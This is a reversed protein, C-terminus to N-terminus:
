VGAEDKANQWGDFRRQLTEPACFEDDYAFTASTVKGHKEKCRRLMDLLEEDTYDRNDDSEVGALEKARSWGAQEDTGFRKRVAGATPHKENEKSEQNFLKQTVKGHKEECARILELYDEDTYDRPRSNNAREDVDLDAAKKADLWSGFREVAVSPSVLDPQARMLAVTCKGDNKRACAKIDEIIDARSYERARGGLNVGSDEVGAEKKAESWSKFRRMVLSPSCTDEMQRFARPSCVEYEEACRQLMEIIDEDSYQYKVTM